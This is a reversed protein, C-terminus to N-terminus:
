PLCTLCIMLAGKTVRLATWTGDEASLGLVSVKDGALIEEISIVTAQTTRDERNLFRTTDTTLVSVAQDIYPQALKNARSVTVTIVMNDLDVAVVTGTLSVVGRPTSQRYTTMTGLGFPDPQPSVGPDYPGRGTEGPTGAPGSGPNGGPGNGAAAPIVAMALMTVLFFPILIKKM